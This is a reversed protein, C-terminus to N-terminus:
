LHWGIILYTLSFIEIVLQVAAVRGQNRLPATRQLPRGPWRRGNLFDFAPSAYEEAFSM